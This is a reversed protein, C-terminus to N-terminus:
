VVFVYKRKWSDMLHGNEIEAELQIVVTFLGRINNPLNFTKRKAQVDVPISM